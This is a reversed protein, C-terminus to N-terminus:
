VKEPTGIYKDDNIENEKKRRAKLTDIMKQEMKDIYGQQEKLAIDAQKIMREMFQFQEKSLYSEKAQLELKNERERAREKRWERKKKRNEEEVQAEKITQSDGKSARKRKLM